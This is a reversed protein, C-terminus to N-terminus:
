ASPEASESVPTLARTMRAFQNVVEDLRIQTDASVIADESVDLEGSHVFRPVIVCRFDLMLSNVIGMHAMYSAYGGAACVIAVVKDCWCQGTMEILNKVSSSVNFNYVPSALLIGDAEAIHRSLVQVNPDTYTAAGDCLPVPYDRLDLYNSEVGLEELRALAAKALVRSRSQPHLSCSIVLLSM